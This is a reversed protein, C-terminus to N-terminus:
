RVSPTLTRETAAPALKEPVMDTAGLVESQDVSALIEKQFAQRFYGSNGILFVAVAVFALAAALPSIGHHRSTHM